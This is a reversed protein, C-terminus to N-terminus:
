SRGHRTADGFVEMLGIGNAHLRQEVLAVVDYEQGSRLRVVPHGNPWAQWRAGTVVRVIVCGLFLGVENVLRPSIEPDTSWGDLLDDVVALTEPTEELSRGQASLWAALRERRGLLSALGDADDVFGHPGFV